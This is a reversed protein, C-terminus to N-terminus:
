GRKPVRFHSKAELAIRATTFSSIVENASLVYFLLNIKNESGNYCSLVNERVISLASALVLKGKYIKSTIISVLVWNYLLHIASDM